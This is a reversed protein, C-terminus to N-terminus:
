LPLLIRFFFNANLSKRSKKLLALTFRFFNGLNKGSKIRSCLSSLGTSIKMSNKRIESFYAKLNNKKRKTIVTYNLVTLQTRYTSVLNNMSQFNNKFNKTNNIVTINQKAIPLLCLVLGRITKRM